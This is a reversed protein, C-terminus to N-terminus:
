VWCGTGEILEKYIMIYKSAMKESSFNDRVREFGKQAMNHAGKRDSLVRVISKAIAEPDEPPILIGTVRDKVVDPIAGVRTAVVPVRAAQAELLAIPLGENLSPLVFVDLISLIEPIDRRMGAFIVKDIIGLKFVMRELNSSEKGDGVFVFVMEPFSEIVKPIARLLYIHGKEKTLSGVTGIVIKGKKIGLSERISSSSINGVFRDLNVGNEILCIKKTDIRALRMKRVIEGSVAIIRDAHRVIFGDLLNYLLLKPGSRRGHKTVVWRINNNSLARWAYFNSKYNHSHIVNIGAKDMYDKIMRITKKDYRGNCPFIQVQFGREKAENAVELNPNRSNEFVGITVKLGARKSHEALELLVREAGLLGSSSILHLIHCKDKQIEQMLYSNPDARVSSESLLYNSYHFSPIISYLVMVM